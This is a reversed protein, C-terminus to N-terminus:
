LHAGALVDTEKLELTFPVLPMPDDHELYERCLRFYEAETNARRMAHLFEGTPEVGLGIFNLYKKMKQVHAAEKIEDPRLIEFLETVYRLVDRGTPMFAVEGRRSQRIQEFIWPNRIAGRGIM